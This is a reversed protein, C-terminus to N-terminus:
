CFEKKFRRLLDYLTKQILVKDKESKRMLAHIKQHNQETLYILNDIDLRRNWNEKIPEIHHVKEGYEKVGLIYYSYIDLGKLNSTVVSKTVLWEKSKYFQQEKYDNRYKRYETHRKKICECQKGLELRKNCRPCRKYIPLSDSRIIFAALSM